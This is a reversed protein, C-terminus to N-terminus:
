FLEPLKDSSKQTDIKPNLRGQKIIEEWNSELKVSQNKYIITELKQLNNITEQDSILKSLQSLTRIQENNNSNWYSILATETNKNDNLELQKFIENDDPTQHIIKQENDNEQNNNKLKKYKKLLLLIILSLIVTFIALAIFILKWFSNKETEEIPKVEKKSTTKNTVTNTPSPPVSNNAPATDSPKIQLTQKNIVTTELKNTQTNFWKLKFEPIILEGSKEPIIIYKMKREAFSSNDVITSNNTVEDEYSKANEIEPFNLQPIKNESLGLVNLTIVREIPEGVKYENQKKLKQTLSITKAPLWNDNTFSAEIPKINLKIPESITSIVAYGFAGEFLFEGLTQEGSKNFSITYVREFVDFPIGRKTVKYEKYDPTTSRLIFNKGEPSILDFQKIPISQFFKMTVLTEEQVFLDKKNVSIEFYFRDKSTNARTKEVKIKIPKTKSGNPFSFSPITIEGITKAKLTFTWSIQKSSVGNILSFQSSSGRGKIIFDKNLASFDTPEGENTIVKLIINDAQQYDKKDSKALVEAKTINLISLFIFILILKFYKVKM